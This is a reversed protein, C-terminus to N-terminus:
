IPLRLTSGTVVQVILLLLGVTGSDPTRGALGARMPVGTHAYTLLVILCGLVFHPWPAPTRGVPAAAAPAINSEPM